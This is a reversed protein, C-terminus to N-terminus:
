DPLKFWKNFHRYFIMNIKVILSNIIISLKRRDPNFTELLVETAVPIGM